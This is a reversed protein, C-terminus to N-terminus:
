NFDRKEKICEQEDSDCPPPHPPEEVFISLFADTYNM